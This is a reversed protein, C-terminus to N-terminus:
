IEKQQLGTWLLRTEKENSASTILKIQVAQFNCLEFHNQIEPLLRVERNGLTIQIEQGQIKIKSDDSNEEGYNTLAASSVLKELFNYMMEARLSCYLLASSSQLALVRRDTSKGTKLKKAQRGHKTGRRRKIKLGGTSGETAGKISQSYADSLITCFVKQGCMIELALSLIKINNFAVGHALIIIKCVQPVQMINSYSLKLLLDYRLVNEYYYRIRNSPVAALHPANM